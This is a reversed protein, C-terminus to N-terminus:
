DSDSFSQPNYPSMLRKYMEPRRDGIRNLEYSGEEIVVRKQRAASPLIEAFLIEEQDPSGEALTEGTPDCIVSRGLFRCGREEGVRNCAIYFVTNEVSRTPIVQGPFRHAAEPWNTPLVIIEAGDLAMSRTAEPFAADYCIILGVRGVPTEYVTFPHNGPTTFRDGGLFPLHVKRYVGGIGDPTMLIASNYVQDRDREFLGFVVCIGTESCIRELTQTAPGPIPEAFEKAEGLNNFCYGNLSCEPFVILETGRDVAKDIFTLARDLNRKKQGLKPDMQVAAVKIKTKKM